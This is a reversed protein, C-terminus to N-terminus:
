TKSAIPQKEWVEEIQKVFDSKIGKAKKPKTDKTRYYIVGGVLAVIALPALVHRKYCFSSM